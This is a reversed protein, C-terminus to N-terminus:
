REVGESRDEVCGERLLVGALLSQSVWLRHKIGETGWLVLPGVRSQPSMGFSKPHQSKTQKLKKQPKQM